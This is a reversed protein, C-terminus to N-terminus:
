LCFVRQFCPEPNKEQRANEKERNAPQQLASLDQCLSRYFLFIKMEFNM